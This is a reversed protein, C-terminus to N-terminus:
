PRNKMIAIGVLGPGGHVTVTSGIKSIGIIDLGKEKAYTAMEDVDSARSSLVWTRYESEKGKLFAAVLDVVEVIAKKRGRIKSHPNLAGDKFVIIPKINLLGGALASAKGVRGGKQLYELTDVTLYVYNENKYSNVLDWIEEITKGEARYEGIDTVLLGQLLTVLRSDLVKIKRDPFEDLLMAAANVASQYSGSFESTLCVCFIDRGETLYPKFADAYDAVGPLSTKPFVGKASMRDYFEEITIDVGDLLYSAGGDFTIKFPVLDIDYQKLLDEPLDCSSDSIIKFNEM